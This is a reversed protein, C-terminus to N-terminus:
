DACSGSECFTGDACPEFSTGESPECAGSECSLGGVATVVAGNACSPGVTPCDEDIVCADCEGNSANPTPSQLCWLGASDNGLVDGLSRDLSMTEGAGVVPWGSAASYSLVDVTGSPSELRLVDASSDISLSADVQADGFPVRSVVIQSFSELTGSLAVTSGDTVLSVTSLDHTGTGPNYIEIWPDSGALVEVIMLDGPGPETPPVCEGFLCIDPACPTSTTVGSYDCDGGSCVGAGSIVVSTDGDCYTSEIEECVTVDCPDGSYCQGAVCSTGTAACDTDSSAYECGGEVCTGASFSTLVDGICFGEPPDDCTVGDCVDVCVGASCFEDGVCSVDTEAYSCVGDTCTGTEAYRIGTVDSTCVDGPPEDCVVGSCSDVCEGFICIEGTASCDTITEDYHCEGEACAGPLAYSRAITGDCTSEPAADCVIGDCPDPIDVCEGLECLQGTDACDVTTPAYSCVGEGCVGPAFGRAITGACSPTDPPTDCVVTSCPDVSTCEGSVCFDGAAACDEVRETYNCEGAVCTGIPEFGTSVGAVCISARPSDCVVGECLEAGSCEGDFCIAGEARCDRRSEVFDCEGDSCSGVRTVLEDGSCTPAPPECVVGECPDVDVCSGAECFLGSATCDAGTSAYVCTGDECTGLDEYVVTTNGDCSPAPPETCSVGVCDDISVCAGASCFAGEDACVRETSAYECTGDVCTGASEYTVLTDGVCAPAPAADCTVGLCADGGVCVGDECVAGTLSCTTRTTEFNCVGFACSSPLAFSVAVGDECSPAPPVSCDVGECPDTVVCEGRLCSRGDAACDISSEDYVCSGGFCRGPAFGRATTGDCRAAPPADCVVGECPDAAQCEGRVCFEGTLSCDTATEDYSCEGADCSGRDSFAIATDGDCSPVPPTNCTILDCSSLCEGNSCTRGDAACDERSEEYLCDGAICEGAAEYTFAVSDVCIADPPTDCVVDVCDAEVCEGARCVLGDDGCDAIDEEFTCELTIPSCEGGSEIVVNNGDCRPESPSCVVDDCRDAAFCEGEFCVGDSAACDETSSIYDCDGDSCIGEAEFRLAIDGDCSPDPPETCEVRDCPDRECAGDVCIDRSGCEVPADGTYVCEGTAEDCVGSFTIVADGDCEPAPPDDCVVDVCPVTCEGAECGSACATRTEAYTCSGGVCEGLSAYTILESGDCTPAPRTFCVVGECSDAPETEGCAQALFACAAVVALAARGIRM